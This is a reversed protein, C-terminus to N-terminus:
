EIQFANAFLDPDFLNEDAVLESPKKNLKKPDVASTMAVVAPFQALAKDVIIEAHVDKKDIIDLLIEIDKIFDACSAYRGESGDGDKSYYLAKCLTKSLIDCAGRYEPFAKKRQEEIRKSIYAQVDSLTNTPENIPVPQYKGITISDISKEGLFMQFCMLAISYIAAREWFDSDIKIDLNEESFICKIEPAAYALTSQMQEIEVKEVDQYSLADLFIAFTEELTKFELPLYINDPKLDFHMLKQYHIRVDFTELIKKTLLFVDKLPLPTKENLYNELTMGYSTDILVYQALTGEFGEQCRVEDTINKAAFARLSNDGFLRKAELSRDVENQAEEKQQNAFEEVEKDTGKATLKYYGERKLEIPSHKPYYEKVIAYLFDDRGEGVQVTVDYILASAGVDTRLRTVVIEDTLRTRDKLPVRNNEFKM